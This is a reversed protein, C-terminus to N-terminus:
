SDRAPILWSALLLAAAAPLYFVGVASAFSFIVLAVGVGTAAAARSPVPLLAPLLTAFALGALLPYVYAGNVEALTQGSDYRSALSLYLSAALALIPAAVLLTRVRRDVVLVSDRQRCLRM